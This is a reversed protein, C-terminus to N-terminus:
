APMIGFGFVTMTVFGHPLKRESRGQYLCSLATWLAPLGAPRWFDLDGVQRSRCPQKSGGASYLRTWLRNRKSFDGGGLSDLQVVNDTDRITEPIGATKWVHTQYVAHLGEEHIMRHITRCASCCFVKKGEPYDAFIEEREPVPLLCHDCFRSASAGHM